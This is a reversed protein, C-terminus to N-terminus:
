QSDVPNTFASSSVQIIEIQQLSVSCWQELRTSWVFGDKLSISEEFDGQHVSLFSAGEEPLPRNGDVPLCDVKRLQSIWDSVLEDAIDGAVPFAQVWGDDQRHIERGDLLVIKDLLASQYNFIRLDQYDTLSKELVLSWQENLMQVSSNVGCFAYSRWGVPTDNGIHLTVEGHNIEIKWRPPTLGFDTGDDGFEDACTAKSIKTTLQEMKDQRALGSFPETIRWKGQIKEFVWQQDGQEMSAYVMEEPSLSTLSPQTTATEPSPPQVLSLFLISLCLLGGLWQIQRRQHNNM